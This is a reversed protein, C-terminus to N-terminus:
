PEGGGEDRSGRGREAPRASSRAPRADNGKAQISAPPGMWESAEFRPNQPLDQAFLVYGDRVLSSLCAQEEGTLFLYPLVQLAGPHLHIGGLNVPGPIGARLLRAAEPIGRVLLITEEPHIMGEPMALMQAESLVRVESAEPAAMAYLEAADQDAAIRDDVLLYQSPGLFRGWGLAVQGHLLRDDVRFLRFPTGGRGVSM